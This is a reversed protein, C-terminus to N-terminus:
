FGSFLGLIVLYVIFTGIFGVLFGIGFAQLSFSFFLMAMFGGFAGIIIAAIM